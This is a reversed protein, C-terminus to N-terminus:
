QSEKENRTTGYRLFLRASNQAMIILAHSCIKEPFDQNRFIESQQAFFYVEVSRLVDPLRQLKLFLINRNLLFKADFFSNFVSCKQM